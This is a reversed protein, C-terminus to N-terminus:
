IRKPCGKQNGRKDNVLTNGDKDYVLSRVYAGDVTANVSGTAVLSVGTVEAVNIQNFEMEILQGPHIESYRRNGDGDKLDTLFVYPTRREMASPDDGRYYLAVAIDKRSNATRDVATSELSLEPELPTAM